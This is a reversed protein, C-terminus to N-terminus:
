HHFHRNNTISHGFYFYYVFKLFICLIELIIKVLCMPYFLLLIVVSFVKQCKVFLCLFHENDIHKMDVNPIEM